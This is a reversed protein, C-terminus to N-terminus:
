QANPSRLAWTARGPGHAAAMGLGMLFFFIMNSDPDTALAVVFCSAAYVALVLLVGLTTEASLRQSRGRWYSAALSAALGGLAALYLLAGLVGLEAAFQLYSNHPYLLANVGRFQVPPQQSITRPFNVFGVGQLWHARTMQLGAKLTAVRGYVNSMDAVRNQYLASDTIRSGLLMVALVGAAFLAVAARRVQKGGALLIWAALSVAILLVFLRFFTFFVTLALLVLSMVLLAPMMRGYRRSARVQFLQFAFLLVGVLGLTETFQYPGNVRLWRSGDVALRISSHTRFWDIHFLQEALGMATLLFSLSLLATLVRRPASETQLAERALLYVAFPLVLGDTWTRLAHLPYDSLRLLNAAALILFGAYSWEFAHPFWEKWPRKRERWLLAILLVPIVARDFTLLSREAPFRFWPDVFSRAVIWVLLAGLPDSVALWVLLTLGLGAALWFLLEGSFTLLDM